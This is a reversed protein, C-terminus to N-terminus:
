TGPANQPELRFTKTTTLNATGAMGTFFKYTYNVKLGVFSSQGNYVDRTSESAVAGRMSTSRRVRGAGILTYM